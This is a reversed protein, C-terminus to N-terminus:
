IGRTTAEIADFEATVAGINARRQGIYAALDDALAPSQGSQDDDLADALHRFGGSALHVLGWVGLVGAASALIQVILVAEILQWTAAAISAQSIDSPYALVVAGVRREFNNFIDNFVFRYPGFQHIGKGDRLGCLVDASPLEGGDAFQTKCDDDVVAAAAIEPHVVRARALLATVNDIQGILLGLRLGQETTDALAGAIVDYRKAELNALDSKFKSINLFAYLSTSAIILTITLVSLLLRFRM